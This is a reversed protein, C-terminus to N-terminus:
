TRWNYKRCLRLLHKERQRILDNIDSASDRSKKRLFYLYVVARLLALWGRRGVGVGYGKGTYLMREVRESAGQRPSERLDFINPHPSQSGGDEMSEGGRGFPGGRFDKPQRRSALKSVLAWFLPTTGKYADRPGKSKGGPTKRKEGKIACFRKLSHGSSNQKSGNEVGEVRTRMETGKFFLDHVVSWLNKRSRRAPLRQAFNRHGSLTEEGSSNYSGSVGGQQVIGEWLETKSDGQVFFETPKLIKEV